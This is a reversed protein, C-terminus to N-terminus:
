KMLIPSTCSFNLSTLIDILRALNIERPSASVSSIATVYPNRKPQYSFTSDTLLLQYLCSLPYNSSRTGGIVLKKVIAQHYVSRPILVIYLQPKFKREHHM